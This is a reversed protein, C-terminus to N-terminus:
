RGLYDFDISSYFLKSKYNCLDMGSPSKTNELESKNM